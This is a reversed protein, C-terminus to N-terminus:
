ETWGEIDTRAFAAIRGYRGGTVDAWRWVEAAPDWIQLAEQKNDLAQQMEPPINDGPVVFRIYAKEYELQGTEPSQSRRDLEVEFVPLGRNDIFPESVPEVNYEDRLITRYGAQLSQLQVEIDEGMEQWGIYQGDQIATLLNEAPDLNLREGMGGIRPRIQDGRINYADRVRKRMDEGAAAYFINRAIEQMELPSQRDANFQPRGDEGQTQSVRNYWNLFAADVRSLTAADLEHEAGLDQLYRQVGDYVPNENKSDAYNLLTRTENETILLQEGSNLIFREIEKPDADNAVMEYVQMHIGHSVAPDPQAGGEEAANIYSRIMGDWTRWTEPTMRDRMQPSYLMDRAALLSGMSSANFVAQMEKDAEDDIQEIRYEQENREIRIQERVEEKVRLLDEDSINRYIDNGEEDRGVAFQLDEPRASDLMREASEWGNARGEALVQDSISGLTIDYMGQEIAQPIQEATLVGDEVATYISQVMAQPDRNEVAMGTTDAYLQENYARRQNATQQSVPVRRQAATEEMWLSFDEANQPDTFLESDPGFQNRAQEVFAEYSTEVQDWRLDDARAQWEYFQRNFISQARNIEQQSARQKQQVGLRGLAAGLNQMGQGFNYMGNSM